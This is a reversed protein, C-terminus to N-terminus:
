PVPMYHETIESLKFLRVHSTAVMLFSVSRSVSPWLTVCTKLQELASAIDEKKRRKEGKLDLM